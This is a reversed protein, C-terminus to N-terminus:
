LYILLRPALSSLSRVEDLANTPLHHLVGLCFLFDAFGPRFPLERVDAMVFIANDVHRLNRRAEFIAESFDALVLERCHPALFYSWRGMGCGLDCVRAGALSGLDVIDFYDEFEQRHEPLIENFTQWEAGFTFQIEPAFDGQASASGRWGAPYRDPSLAVIVDNVVPFVRGDVILRDAQVEVERAGFVDRLAEVKTSYYM